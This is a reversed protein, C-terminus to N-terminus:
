PRATRDSLATTILAQVGASIAGRNWHFVTAFAAGERPGILAGSVEFYSEVWDQAAARL